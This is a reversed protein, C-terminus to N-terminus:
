NMRWISWFISTATACASPTRQGRLQRQTGFSTLVFSHPSTDGRQASASLKSDFYYDLVRVNLAIM